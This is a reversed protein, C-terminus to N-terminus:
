CVALKVVPECPYELYIGVSNALLDQAPSDLLKVERALFDDDHGLDEMRGHSSLHDSSPASGAHNWLNRSDHHPLGPPLHEVDGLRVGHAIDVM